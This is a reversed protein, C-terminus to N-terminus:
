LQTDQTCCVHIVVISKRGVFFQILRTITGLSSNATCTYNGANGSQVSTIVIEGDSIDINSSDTVGELAVTVTPLPYGIPTCLLRGTIVPYSACSFSGDPSINSCNFIDTRTVDFGPEVTFVTFM